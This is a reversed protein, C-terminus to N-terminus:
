QFCRENGKGARAGWKSLVPFPNIGKVALNDFALCADLVGNVERNDFRIVIPGADRRPISMHNKLLLPVDFVLKRGSSM